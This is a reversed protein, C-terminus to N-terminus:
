KGQRIIEFKNTYGGNPLISFSNTRGMKNFSCTFFVYDKLLYKEYLFFQTKIANYLKLLTTIDVKEENIFNNCITLSIKKNYCLKFIKKINSDSEVVYNLRYTALRNKIIKKLKNYNLDIANISINNIGNIIIKNYFEINATFNTNISKYITPYYENILNLYDFFKDKLLSPEGGNFIIKNPIFNIKKFEELYYKLKNINLTNKSYNKQYCFKCKKNCNFTLFIHLDTIKNQKIFKEYINIKM